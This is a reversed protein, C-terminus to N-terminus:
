ICEGLWIEAKEGGKLVIADFYKLDKANIVSDNQKLTRKNAHNSRCKFCGCCIYYKIANFICNLKLLDM